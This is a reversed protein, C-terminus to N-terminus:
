QVVCDKKKKKKKTGEIGGRETGGGAAEASGASGAAVTKVVMRSSVPIHKDFGCKFRIPITAPAFPSWAPLRPAGMSPFEPRLWVDRFHQSRGVIMYPKEGQSSGDEGGEKKGEGGKGEGGWAAEIEDWVRGGWTSPVMMVPIGVTSRGGFAGCAGGSGGSGGSGGTEALGEGGDCCGGGHGDKREEETTDVDRSPGSSPPRWDPLEPATTGIGGDGRSGGGRKGEEGEEEGDDKEKAVVGGAMIHSVHEPENNVVICALGGAAEVARAKDIFDVEGCRKVLVVRGRAAEQLPTSAGFPIAVVVEGVIPGGVAPLTGSFAAAISLDCLDGAKAENGKGSAQADASAASAASAARAASAAAAAAAAEAAAAATTFYACTCTEVPLCDVVDFHLHPGTSYGTSGSLGIWAGEEVRDGPVVRVGGHQLHYYRGYTGDDHRVAVYNAKVKLETRAGGKRFHSVAAAVVGGRAALVRCGPPMAFDISFALSGSHSFPSNIGQAVKGKGGALRERFRRVKREFPLAYAHGRPEQWSWDEPLVDANWGCRLV